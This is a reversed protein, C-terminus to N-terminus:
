EDVARTRDNPPYPRTCGGVRLNAAPLERPQVRPLLSWFIASTAKSQVLRLKRPMASVRCHCSKAVAHARKLGQVYGIRPVGNTGFGALVGEAQGRELVVHFVGTQFFQSVVLLQPDSSITSPNRLMGNVLRVNPRDSRGRPNLSANSANTALKLDSCDVCSALAAFAEEAESRRIPAGNILLGRVSRRYSENRERIKEQISANHAWNAEEYGDAKLRALLGARTLSKGVGDIIYECFARRVAAPDISTGDPRYLCQAAERELAATLEPLTFSIARLRRLRDLGISEDNQCMPLVYTVFDYKREASLRKRFTALDPSEQADECLLRLPNAGVESVFRATAKPDRDLKDILDGLISRKTSKKEAALKAVTWVADTTQVKVSHFERLGNAGIKVFEIGVGDDFPEPRIEDARGQLLDLVNYATWRGEYRNGLKDAEGASRM